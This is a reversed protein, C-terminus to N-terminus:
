TCPRSQIHARQLIANPLLNRAAEQRVCPVGAIPPQVPAAINRSRMIRHLRRATQFPPVDLSVSSPGLGCCSNPTRQLNCAVCAGEGEYLM